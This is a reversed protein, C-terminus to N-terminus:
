KFLKMWNSPIFLVVLAWYFPGTRENILSSIGGNGRYMGVTLWGKPKAKKIKIKM